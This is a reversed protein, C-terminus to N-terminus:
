RGREANGPRGTQQQGSLVRTRTRDVERRSRAQRQGTRSRRPARGGPSGAAPADAGTALVLECLQTKQRDKLSRAKEQLAKRTQVSVKGTLWDVGIHAVRQGAALDIRGGTASGDPYFRIAALRSEVTENSVATMAISVTGPLAVSRGSEISFSHSPIDVTFRVAANNAIARSRAVRLGQAVENVAALMEM